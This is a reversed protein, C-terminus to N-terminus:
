VCFIPMSTRTSTVTGSSPLKRQSVTAGGPWCSTAITSIDIGEINSASVISSMWCVIFRPTAPPTNRVVSSMWASKWRIFAAPTSNV